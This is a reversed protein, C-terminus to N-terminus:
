TYRNAQRLISLAIPLSLYCPPGAHLYHYYFLYIFAPQITIATTIYDDIITTCQKSFEPSFTGPMSHAIASMQIFM